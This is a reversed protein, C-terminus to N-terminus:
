NYHTFYNSIEQELNQEVSKIKNYLKDNNAFFGFQRYATVAMVSMLMSASLTLVIPNSTLIAFFTSPTAWAGAMLGLGFGGMTILIGAFIVWLIGSILDATKKSKILQLIYRDFEAIEQKPDLGTNINTMLAHFRQNIVTSLETPVRAKILLKNIITAGQASLEQPQLLYQKIENIMAQRTQNFHNAKWCQGPRLDGKQAGYKYAELMLLIHSFRMKTCETLAEMLTMPTRQAHSVDDALCHITKANLVKADIFAELSRSLVLSTMQSGSGARMDLLQPVRVITMDTQMYQLVSQYLPSYAFLKSLLNAKMSLLINKQANQSSCLQDIANILPCLKDLVDQGVEIKTCAAFLSQLNNEAVLVANKDQTEQTVEKFKSLSILNYLFVSKRSDDQIMALHINGYHEEISEEIAKKLVDEYENRMGGASLFHEDYATVMNLIKGDNAYVARDVAENHYRGMWTFVGPFLGDDCLSFDTLQVYNQRLEEKGHLALHRARAAEFSRWVEAADPGSYAEIDKKFKMKHAAPNMEFWERLDVTVGLQADPILSMNKFDFLIDIDQHTELNHINKAYRILTAIHALTAYQQLALDDDYQVDSQLDQLQKIALCLLGQRELANARRYGLLLDYLSGYSTAHYVDSTTRSDQPQQM